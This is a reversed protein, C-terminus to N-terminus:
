TVNDADSASVTPELRVPLIESIENVTIGVASYSASPLEKSIVITSGASGHTVRSSFEVVRGSALSPSVSIFTFLVIM